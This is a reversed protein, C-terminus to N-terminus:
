PRLRAARAVRRLHGKVTGKLHARSTSWSEGLRVEIITPAQQIAHRLGASDGDYRLHPVGVSQGFAAYDIGPLRTGNARGYDVLQQHRILGYEGDALVHV